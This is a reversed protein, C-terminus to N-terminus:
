QGLKTKLRGVEARVQGASPADPAEQLFLNYEALALEPHNQAALARAAIVHVIAYQLHLPIAHVRRASDIAGDYQATMFQTPVLLGLADLNNPDATLAKKLLEDAAKLDRRNFQVKALNILADSYRDNLSVAKEFSLIGRAPDGLATYVVGLSNYARAYDPYIAIASEFYKKALDLQNLGQAQVGREFEKKAKGPVRMDVASILADRAKVEQYDKEAADSRPVGLVQFAAGQNCRIPFLSGTTEKVTLGSVHLAYNGPRQVSFQGGGEDDTFLQDVYNGAANLLEVKLRVGPPREDSLTIRIRLDVPDCRLETQSLVPQPVLLAVTALALCAALTRSTPVSRLM